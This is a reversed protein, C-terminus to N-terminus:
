VVGVADRHGAAPLQQAALSLEDLGGLVLVQGCEGVEDPFRAATGPRAERRQRGEPRPSLDVIRGTPMAGLRTGGRHRLSCGTRSGTPTAM